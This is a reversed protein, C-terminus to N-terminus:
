RQFVGSFKINNQKWNKYYDMKLTLKKRLLLNNRNSQTSRTQHFVSNVFSLYDCKHNEFIQTMNWFILFFCIFGYHICISISSKLEANQKHLYIPM